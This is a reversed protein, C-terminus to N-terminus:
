ARCGNRSSISSIREKKRITHTFGASPKTLNAALKVALTSIQSYNLFFPMNVAYSRSADNRCRGGPEHSSRCPTSSTLRQCQEGTGLSPHHERRRQHPSGIRRCVSRDRTSTTRDRSSPIRRIVAEALARWNEAQRSKTAYILFATFLYLPALVIAAKFILLPILNLNFQSRAFPLIIIFVLAAFHVLAIPYLLQTILQKAIRAQDRYYDALLRFCADLRGSREGADILAIDFEPLWGDLQQLSAAFTRGETLEHLLKELRNM